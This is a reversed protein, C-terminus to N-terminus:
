YMDLLIKFINFMANSGHKVTDDPVVFLAKELMRSANSENVLM